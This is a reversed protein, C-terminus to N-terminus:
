PVKAVKVAINFLLTLIHAPPIAKDEVEGRLFANMVLHFSCVSGRSIAADLYLNPFTGYSAGLLTQLRWFRWL